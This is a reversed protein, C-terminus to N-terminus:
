ARSVLRFLYGVGFLVHRAAWGAARVLLPRLPPEGCAAGRITRNPHSVLPEVASHLGPPQGVVPLRRVKDMPIVGVRLGTGSTGYITEPSVTLYSLSLWDFLLLRGSLPKTAALLLLFVMAPTGWTTPQFIRSRYRRYRGFNRILIPQPAAVTWQTNRGLVANMALQDSFLEHAAMAALVDDFYAVTRANARAAFFGACLIFHHFRTPSPFGGYYPELGQSALLDAPKQRALWPRPDAQWLADTDSHIFDCCGALRRFVKVRLLVVLARKQRRTLRELNFRRNEPAPELVPNPEDPLVDRCSVVPVEPHRERLFGLLRDDICIVRYHSCGVRRVCEAWSIVEERYDYTGFTIAVPGAEEGSGPQFLGDM